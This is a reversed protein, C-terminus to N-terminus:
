FSNPTHDARQRFQQPSIGTARRFARSFSNAHSFGCAQAISKIPQDPAALMDKAEKILYNEIYSSVTEGTVALFQRHLHRSSIRCLKALESVSPREGGTNLRERIRRFQWAALRGGSGSDTQGEFVRALEITALQGLAQLADDSRGLRNALERHALRMVTRLSNNRINLLSQLFPLSPQSAHSLIRRAAEEALVWRVLRIQGGEARGRVAVGPMRVFLTGMYCNTGPAIEPFSASADASLPPLSMELMLEQTTDLFDLIPPYHWEVLEFRGTPLIAQKLIIPTTDAEHAM